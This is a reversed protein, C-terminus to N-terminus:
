RHCVYHLNIVPRMWPCLLHCPLTENASWTKDEGVIPVLPRAPINGSSIRWPIHLELDGWPAWFINLTEIQINIRSAADGAIAWCLTASAAAWLWAADCALFVAAEGSGAPAGVRSSTKFNNSRSCIVLVISATILAVFCCLM